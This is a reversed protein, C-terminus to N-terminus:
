QSNMLAIGKDQETLAKVRYKKQDEPEEEKM